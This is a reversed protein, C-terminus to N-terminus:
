KNALDNFWSRGYEEVISDITKMNVDLSRYDIKLKLLFEVVPRHNGILAYHMATWGDSNVANPNAGKKVIYDMFKLHGRLAAIHFPTMGDGTKSEINAGNELLLDVCETRGSYAAWHLATYGYFNKKDVIAGNKILYEACQKSGYTVASMLLTHAHNESSKTSANPDIKSPCIEKLKEIYNMQCYGWPEKVLRNNFNPAQM